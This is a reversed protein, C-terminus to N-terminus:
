LHALETFDEFEARVLDIKPRGRVKRARRRVAYPRVFPPVFQGGSLVSPPSRGSIGLFGWNSVIQASLEDRPMINGMRWTFMQPSAALVDGPTRATLVDIDPGVSAVRM